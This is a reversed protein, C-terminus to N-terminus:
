VIIMANGSFCLWKQANTWVLGVSQGISSLILANGGVLDNILIKYHPTDCSCNNVQIDSVIFYKIHGIELCNKDYCFNIEKYDEDITIESFTTDTDITDNQFLELNLSHILNKDYKINNNVLLNNTINIQDTDIILKNEIQNNNNVSVVYTHKSNIYNAGISCSEVNDLQFQIKSGGYTGSIHNLKLLHADQNICGTYNIDLSNGYLNNVNGSGNINVIKNVSNVVFFDNNVGVHLEESLYINKWRKSTEGISFTNTCVPIINHNFTNNCNNNCNNGNNNCNNNCDSTITGTVNLNGNICIDTNISIESSSEINNINLTSAFITDSLYLSKWKVSSSGINLSNSTNPMISNKISNISLLNGYIENWIKSSSGINFCNNVSPLINSNVSTFNCTNNCGNNCDVFNGVINGGVYLNGKIGVGGNITVAGTCTNTSNASSLVTISNVLLDQYSNM